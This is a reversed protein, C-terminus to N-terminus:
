REVGVPYLLYRTDYFPSREYFWSYVKTKDDAFGPEQKKKLEFEKRLNEDRALMWRALPEIAYEEIYETRSFIESFFGWALFSDPSQPELLYVILDGLRQDTSIRVSGPYFTEEHKEAQVNVKVNFHGEFPQASITHDRLRYLEVNVTKAETIKEMEIGHMALREIVNKYTAPVWYAKPRKVSIGPQNIRHYPINQTIAKGTWRVYDSTTLASKEIVSEIGLFEVMEPKDAAKWTVVINENRL